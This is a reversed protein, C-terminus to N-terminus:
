NEVETRNRGAQKAAYMAKDARCLLTEISENPANHIIEAIGISVTVSAEGKETPVRVNQAQTRIREALPYAQNVNTVPLLVVFEEGGYRGIIDASRLENKVAQIVCQLVHDGAMHGFKDNVEKFNDFDFMLATLPQHYRAAVEFEYEALEFLRRRNNIGTLIDTHALQQERVLAAQLELNAEQLAQEARKRETINEHLVIAGRRPARQSLVTIAFWLSKTPAIFPYELSFHPQSKELAKRIGESVQSATQNGAEAAAQCVDIYNYGVFGNSNPHHNERAFNLWAENVSIIVGHEDLAAIHATLSNLVDKIFLESAQLAQEAQKRETIDRLVTGTRYGKETKIIFSSNQLFKRKGDAGIIEVDQQGAQHNIKGSLYTEFYAKQLHQRTLKKRREPTLAQYQIDWVNAGLASAQPIGTINSQAPNWEIIVGQEDALIVGDLMNEVLSHFRENGEKLENEAWKRETIDMLMLRSEQGGEFCTAEIRTWLAASEDKQFRVECTKRGQRTLLDELFANFIPLCDYDVFVGLRRDVLKGREVGLLIAGALNVKRITGDPTLTLYGVPAFDYLDTYQRYAEEAEARAQTLEENQMELEIQHAQLEHLLRLTEVENLPQPKGMQVGSKEEVQRRLENKTKRM